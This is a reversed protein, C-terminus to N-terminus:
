RDWNLLLRDLLSSSIGNAHGAEMDKANAALIRAADTELAKAINELAQNKTESDTRALERAVSRAAIGKQELEPIIAM